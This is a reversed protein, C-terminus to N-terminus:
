VAFTAQGADKEQRLALEQEVAENFAEGPDALKAGFHRNRGALLNPHKAKKRPTGGRVTEGDGDKVVSAPGETTPRDATGEAMSLARKEATTLEEGAERKANLDRRTTQRRATKAKNATIPTIQVARKLTFAQEKPARWGQDFGLLLHQATGPTLYTYRLGAAKDSARITAMDASIGSLHPYDKKIADAILCGGSASQVARQYSKETIRVVLAPSQKRRAM